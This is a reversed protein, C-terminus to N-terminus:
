KKTEWITEKGSYEVDFRQICNEEGETYRLMLINYVVLVACVWDKHKSIRIEGAKSNAYVEWKFGFIM